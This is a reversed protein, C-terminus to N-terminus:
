PESGDEFHATLWLKNQALDKRVTLTKGGAVMVLGPKAHRPKSVYKKKTYLVDVLTGDKAKSLAACLAAAEHWATPSIERKKECRIIVHSGPYDRVHLWGDNGNALRMTVYDNDKAARGAIIHFGDSSVCRYIKVNPGTKVPVKPAPAAPTKKQKPWKAALEELSLTELQKLNEELEKVKKETLLLREEMQLRGREAKEALSFYHAINEAPTKKALLKIEIVEGSSFVDPVTIKELRPKLLHYNIKLLEGCRRYYPARGAEKLDIKIKELKRQEKALSTTLEKKANQRLTEIELRAAENRIELVEQTKWEYASTREPPPTYPEGGALRKSSSVLVLGNEDTLTAHAGACHLHLIRRDQFYLSVVSTEPHFVIKKVVQGKLTLAWSDLQETAEPYDEGPSSNSLAIAGIPNPALYFYFPAKGELRFVWVLRHWLGFKKLDAPLLQSFETQLNM